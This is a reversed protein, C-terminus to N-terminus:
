KDIPKELFNIIDRVVCQGVCLDSLAIFVTSYEPLINERILYLLDNEEMFTADIEHETYIYDCSVYNRCSRYFKNNPFLIYYKFRM